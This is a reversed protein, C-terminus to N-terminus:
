LQIGLKSWFSAILFPHITMALPLWWGGLVRIGFLALLLSAVMGIVVLGLLWLWHRRVSVAALMSTSGLLGWVSYQALQGGTIALIANPDLGQVPTRVTARLFLLTVGVVFMIRANM